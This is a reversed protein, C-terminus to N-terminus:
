RKLCSKDKLLDVNAVFYNKLINIFKLKLLVIESASVVVNQNLTNNVFKEIESLLFNKENEFKKIKCPMSLLLINKQKELHHEVIGPLKELHEKLSPLDINKRYLYLRKILNLLDRNYSDFEKIGTCYDDKWEFDYM